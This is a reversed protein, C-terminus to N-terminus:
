LRELVEDDSTTICYKGSDTHGDGIWFGLTYALYDWSNPPTQYRLPAAIPIIMRKGKALMHHLQETTYLLAKTIYNINWSHSDMGDLVPHTFGKNLKPNKM